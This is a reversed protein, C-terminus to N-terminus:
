KGYALTTVVTRRDPSEFSLVPANPNISNVLEARRPSQGAYRNWSFLVDQADVPRANVPALPAFLVGEKLRVTIQTGDESFEYSEALEGEFEGSAEELHGEKIRFLQSYAHWCHAVQGGTLHPDLSVPTPHSWTGMGGRVVESTSDRIPTLLGSKDNSAADSGNEQGGDGGCAALLAASSSATAAVKM